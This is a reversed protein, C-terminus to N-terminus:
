KNKIRLISMQVNELLRFFSFHETFNERHGHKCLARDQERQTGTLKDEDTFEALLSRLM